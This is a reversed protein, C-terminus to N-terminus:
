GERGGDRQIDGTFGIPEDTEEPSEEAVTVGPAAERRGWSEMGEDSEMQVSCSGVLEVDEEMGGLEGKTM